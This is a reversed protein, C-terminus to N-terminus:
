SKFINDVLKNSDIQHMDIVEDASVTNKFFKDRVEEKDLDTSMGMVAIGVQNNSILFITSTHCNVCTAHLTTRQDNEELVATDEIEFDNGCFSCKLLLELNNGSKNFPLNKNRM